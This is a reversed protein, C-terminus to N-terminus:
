EGHKLQLSTILEENDKKNTNRVWKGYRAVNLGDVDDRPKIEMVTQKSKAKLDEIIERKVTVNGSENVNNPLTTIEERSFILIFNEAGAPPAMTLWCDDEQPVNSCRSPVYYEQNVKVFNKGDNINPAPFLVQGDQGDMYHLIYLYGNQNPSIAMQLQDGTKFESSPDVEVKVNGDGRKVIRWQLTLLSATLPRTALPRTRKRNPKTVRNISAKAYWLAAGQKQALAPRTIVTHTMLGAIVAIL